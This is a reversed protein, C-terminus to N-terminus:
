GRGRARGIVEVLCSTVIEAVRRSGAETFHMDDYFIDPSAPLADAVDCTAHGRRRAQDLLYTNYLHALHIMSDFTLTYSQQPPTMWFSQKLEESAEAKYAHPQTAFVCTIRATECREMLRRLHEKYEESVDGPEFRIVTSRSLSGRQYLSDGPVTRHAADVAESDASLYHRLRRAAEGLLTNRLWLREHGEFLRIRPFPDFGRHALVIHRNWDNAGLMILVLDPHFDLIKDLTAIHNRARLGRLGTNVVEVDRGLRQSLAEATRYTWTERDDLWVEETTSGGIAFIRVASSKREYDVPGSTRFGMRDTRIEKRGDIGRTGGVVDVVYHMNPPATRLHVDFLFVSAIAQFVLFGAGWLAYVRLLPWPLFQAVLVAAGVALTLWGITPNDHDFFVICFAFFILGAVIRAREVSSGLL